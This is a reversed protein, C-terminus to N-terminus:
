ITAGLHMYDSLGVADSTTNFKRIVAERLDINASHVLKMLCMYVDACEDALQEQTAQSGRHYMEWRVLKKVVNAVEGAEGALELAQFWLPIEEGNAWENQRATNAAHFSGHKNIM